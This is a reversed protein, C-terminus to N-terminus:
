KNWVLHLANFLYSLLHNVVQKTASWFYLRSCNLAIFLNTIPLMYFYMEFKYCVLVQGMYILLLETVEM